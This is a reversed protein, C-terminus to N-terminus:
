FKSPPKRSPPKRPQFGVDEGEKFSPRLGDGIVGQEQEQTGNKDAPRKDALGGSSVSGQVDGRAKWAEVVMDRIWDTRHVWRVLEDPCVGFGLIYNRALQIGYPSTGLTDAIRFTADETPYESWKCLFRIVDNRSREHGIIKEVELNLDQEAPSIRPRRRERNPFCDLHPDVYHKLTDIHFTNHRKSDGIELTYTSTSPDAKIVKYPGVYKLALKQRGKPLHALQSENSVMVMDGVKVDPDEKKRINVYHSQETKAAIIADQAELQSLMRNEVFDMSAPNDADFVIPPFSM